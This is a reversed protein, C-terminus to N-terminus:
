RSGCAIRCAPARGLSWTGETKIAGPPNLTKVGNPSPSQAFGLSSVMAIAAGCPLAPGQLKQARGICTGLRVWNAAPESGVELEGPMLIGLECANGLGDHWPTDRSGSGRSTRVSFRM